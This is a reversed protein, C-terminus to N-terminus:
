PLAVARKAQRRMRPRDLAELAAVLGFLVGFTAWAYPYIADLVHLTSLLDDM